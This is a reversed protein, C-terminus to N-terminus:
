INKINYKLWIPTVIIPHIVVSSVRACLELWYLNDNCTVQRTCGLLVRDGIGAYPVTTVVGIVLSLAVQMYLM